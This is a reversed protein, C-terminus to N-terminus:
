STYRKRRRMLKFENNLPKAFDLLNKLELQDISNITYKYGFINTITLKKYGIKDIDKEMFSEIDGYRFTETKSNGVGLAILYVLRRDTAMLVGNKHLVQGFAIREITEGDELVLPLLSIQSESFVSPQVKEGFINEQIIRRRM